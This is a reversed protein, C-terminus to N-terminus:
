VSLLTQKTHKIGSERPNHFVNHSNSYPLAHEIWQSYLQKTTNTLRERLEKGFNDKLDKICIHWYCGKQRWHLHKTNPKEKEM